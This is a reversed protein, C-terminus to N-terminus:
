APQALPAHTSAGYAPALSRGATFRVLMLIGAAVAIIAAHLGWFATAPMKEFLGGLWGVGFNAAFLHLYFVGVLLGALRKPAARSYLALGIPFINAFAFDNVIEFAVAWGLGVRQGTSAVIAAAAVLLLPATAALAVGLAMKLLEDPERWRRAWWRWFALSAVIATGSIVSGFSLIWTIPMERGFFTRRYNAEAWLLYANFIQQNGVLALALVPVLGVLIWVNRREVRTLPVHAQAARAAGRPPEPPLHRRGRLYVVLGVIMGVGAAGFGWDWGRVEGLTGCVFPSAIVAVQVALLFMQFGDGRRPDDDAYLAGVQSSINGKFCGVGVLLFALAILFTSELAMLCHGIAMLVAGLAVTATRGLWRDALWGGALPTLYVLGAYLGFIASALAQPSQVGYVAELAHRFGAFGAVHSVHEPLLLWHTMYLVLLTQMGYYSFREWFEAFSLWGLGVPHGFYGRGRLKM